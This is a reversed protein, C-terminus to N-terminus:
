VFESGASTQLIGPIQSKSRIEYRQIRVIQRAREIEQNHKARLTKDNFEHRKQDKHLNRRAPQTEKPKQLVMKSHNALVAPHM